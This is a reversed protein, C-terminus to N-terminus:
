VGTLKDSFQDISLVIIAKDLTNWLRGFNGRDM